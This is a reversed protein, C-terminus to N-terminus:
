AARDQARRREITETVLLVTITKGERRAIELLQRKEAPTVRLHFHDSKNQKAPAM